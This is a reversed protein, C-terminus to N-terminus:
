PAVVIAGHQAAHGFDKRTVDPAANLMGLVMGQQHHM